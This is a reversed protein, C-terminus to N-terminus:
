CRLLSTGIHCVRSARYSLLLKCPLLGAYNTVGLKELLLGVEHEFVDMNTATSLMLRLFAKSQAHQLRSLVVAGMAAATCAPALDLIDYM